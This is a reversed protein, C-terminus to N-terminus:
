PTSAPPPAAPAPAPAPRPAAATLADAFERARRLRYLGPLTVTQVGTVLRTRCMPGGVLVLVTAIAPVLGLVSLVIWFPLWDMAEGGRALVSAVGILGAVLLLSLFGLISALLARLPLPRIVVAEIDDLRFRRYRELAGIVDVVLLHDQALWFSAHGLLYRPSSPLRRYAPNNQLRDEM